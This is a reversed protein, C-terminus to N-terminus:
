GAVGLVDERLRVRSLKGTSTRPLERFEISTPCKFGALGGRCHEMLEAALREASEGALDEFSRPEIMAAVRQGWEEDPMGIVAADAVSPHTLLVSEIEAPYINVGGSIILDSRRDSLYLWGEDDLHGLDGVTFLDGRRAAATKEPAKFYEFRDGSRFYINGIEGAPLADGGDDLIVVESDEWARGVTGPHRLWDQPGVYTGGGETAAYYEYLVPGLWDIMRQKVTVPCPAGAHVVRTLSSVDHRAREDGPMSLLRHFMIPVMHSATVRHREVLELFLQPTWKDMLVVTHGIQLALSGYANPAAHYLPAVVLHVGSGATRGLMRPLLSVKAALSQEPTADSLPKRVGKPRGTTGSTYLMVSGQRRRLPAIDPMGDVLEDLGRFGPFAPVGFRREPPLGAQDAAAAVADALRPGALLLKAESDVLIYALEPATLHWNLATLYLGLQSTALQLALFARHNPLAVAVTDGDVLGQACLGHSIRNALDRLQGFTTESGDVDIVAVREPGADAIEWFGLAGNVRYAEILDAADQQV